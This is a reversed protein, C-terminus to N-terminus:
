KLGESFRYGENKALLRAARFGATSMAEVGISPEGLRPKFRLFAFTGHPSGGEVIVFRGGTRLVRHGERLTAILTGAQLSGHADSTAHLVVVDFSDSDFPLATNSRTQVDVLAGAKEAAVRAQAAERDDGAIIVAHGSLGVKAAIAGVLSPDAVGLQLAREGMRVGTMAVPLRELKSKRLFFM